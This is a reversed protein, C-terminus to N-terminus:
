FVCRETRIRCRCAHTCVHTARSNRAPQKMYLPVFPSSFTPQFGLPYKACPLHVDGVVVVVVVLVVVVVVVVVIVVVEVVVVVVVLVVVVVEVVM